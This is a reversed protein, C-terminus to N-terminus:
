IYIVLPQIFLTEKEKEKGKGKDDRGSSFRSAYAFDVIKVGLRGLEDKAEIPNDWDIDPETPALSAASAVSTNSFTRKPNDSPVLRASPMPQSSPSPSPLIQTQTRGLSALTRMRAQAQPPSVSPGPDPSSLSPVSTSAPMSRTLLRPSNSRSSTSSPGSSTSSGALPHAHVEVIENAIEACERDSQPIDIFCELKTIEQQANDGMKAEKKSSKVHDEGTVRKAQKVHVEHARRLDVDGKGVSLTGPISTILDVSTHPSLQARFTRFQAM